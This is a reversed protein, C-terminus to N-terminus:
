KRNQLQSIIDVALHHLDNGNLKSEFALSLCYGDLDVLYNNLQIDKNSLKPPYQTVHLYCKIGVEDTLNEFESTFPMEKEIFTSVDRSEDLYLHIKGIEKDLKHFTAYAKDDSVSITIDKPTSFEFSLAHDNVIQASSWDLSELKISYVKKSIANSNTHNEVTDKTKEKEDKQEHCIAVLLLLILALLICLLKKMYSRRELNVIM